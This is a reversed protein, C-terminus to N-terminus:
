FTVQVGVGVFVWLTSSRPFTFVASAASGSVIKARSKDLERSGVQVTGRVSIRGVVAGAGVGGRILYGESSFVGGLDNDVEVDPLFTYSAFTDLHLVSSVRFELGLGATVGHGLITEDIKRAVRGNLDQLLVKVGDLEFESREFSMFDLTYGLTPVLAISPGPQVRYGLGLDFLTTAVSLDNEQRATPLRASERGGGLVTGVGLYPSFGSLNLELKTQFGFSGEEFTSKVRQSSLTEGYSFYAGGMDATVRLTWADDRPEEQALPVPEARGPVNLGAEQACAASAILFGLLLRGAATM